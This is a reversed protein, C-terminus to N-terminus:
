QAPTAPKEDVVPIAAALDYRLVADMKNEIQYFCAACPSRHVRIPHRGPVQRFDKGSM